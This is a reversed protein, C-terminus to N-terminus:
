RNQAAAPVASSGQSRLTLPLMAFQDVPQVEELIECGTRVQGENGPVSQCVRLKIFLPARKGAANQDDEVPLGLILHSCSPPQPSYFSIGTSSLDCIFVTKREELLPVKGDKLPVICAPQPFLSRSDGRRDASSMTQVCCRNLLRRVRRSAAERKRNKFAFLDM